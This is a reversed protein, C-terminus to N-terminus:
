IGVEEVTTTGSVAAPAPAVPVAAAADGSLCYMNATKSSAAVLEIWLGDVRRNRQRMLLRGISKTSGARGRVALLQHLDPRALTRRGSLDPTTEGALRELDAAGFAVGVGVHRRLAEVLARLSDREPDLARAGEITSAPDPEGLWVLPARVIRSWPDFGAFPSAVDPAGAALYARTVTFAAALYAGRNARVREVPDFAFARTEPRELGADLRGHLTRRVLDGRVTVNNGNGIATMSRCDCRVLDHTQMRRIGVVGETVIQCLLDSQLDFSLNNLNLIPAGDFAAAELRKQLEEPRPSAIVAPADRGSAIM